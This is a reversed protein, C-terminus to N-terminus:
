EKFDASKDENLEVLTLLIVAMNLKQEEKSDIFKDENFVAFTSFISPINM